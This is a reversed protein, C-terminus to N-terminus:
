ASSWNKPKEVTRTSIMINDAFCLIKQKKIAEELVPVQM